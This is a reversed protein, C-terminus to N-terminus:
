GGSSRGRGAWVGKPGHRRDPDCQRESEPGHDGVIYLDREGCQFDGVGFFDRERIAVCRSRDDDSRGAIDRICRYRRDPIGQRATHCLVSGCCSTGREDQGHVCLRERHRMGDLGSGGGKPTATLTVVADTAFPAACTTKSLCAAIGAPSSSVTGLAGAPQGTAGGQTVTLTLVMTPPRIVTVRFTRTAQNGANRGILLHGSNPRGPLDVREATRLDRRTARRRRDRQGRVHRRDRGSSLHHGHHRRPRRDPRPSTASSSM